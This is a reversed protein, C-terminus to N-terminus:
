APEPADLDKGLRRRAENLWAERITWGHQLWSKGDPNSAEYMKRALREVRLNPPGFSLLKSKRSWGSM